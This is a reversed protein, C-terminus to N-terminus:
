APAANAAVFASLRPLSSSMWDGRAAPGGAAVLDSGLRVGNPTLSLQTARM